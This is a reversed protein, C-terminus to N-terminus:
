KQEDGDANKGVSPEADKNEASETNQGAIEKFDINTNARNEQLQVKRLGKAIANDIRLVIIKVRRLFKLMFASFAADIKEPIESHAWREFASKSHEGDGVPAEEIRPLARVMLYLVTGLCLMLITTFIFEVM